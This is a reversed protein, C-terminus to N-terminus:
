ETSQGNPSVPVPRRYGKAAIDTEEEEWELQLLPQNAECYHIAELVADLPVNFDAAVAEPTRAGDGVTQLYLTEARVGRDKVFWQRYNSGLRPGLYKYEM